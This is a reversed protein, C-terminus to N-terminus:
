ESHPKPTGRTAKDYLEAALGVFVLGVGAWESSSFSHDFIQVSLIISFFKRTTTIATNTLTGFKSIIFFISVQGAAGCAGFWAVHTKAEPHRNLFALGDALSGAGMSRLPQLPLLLWLLCVFVGALNMKKMLEFKGTKHKTMDDQTSNVYGSLFLEFGVLGFGLLIHDGAQTKSNDKQSQYLMLGGTICGVCIYQAVRLKRRYYLVTWLMIPVM